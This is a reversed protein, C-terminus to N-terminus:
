SIRLYQRGNKMTKRFKSMIMSKRLQSRVMTDLQQLVKTIM